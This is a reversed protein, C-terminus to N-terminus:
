SRRGPPTSRSDAWDGALEFPDDGPSPAVEPAAPPASAGAGALARAVIADRMAGHREALSVRLAHDVLKNALEGALAELPATVGAKRRLEVVVGKKEASALLVYVRDMLEYAAGYVADLPYVALDVRITAIGRGDDVSMLGAPSKKRAM